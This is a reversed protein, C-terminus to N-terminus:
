RRAALAAARAGEYLRRAARARARARRPQWLRHLDVHGRADVRAHVQAQCALAVHALAARRRAVEVHADGDLGAAAVEGGDREEAALRLAEAEATASVIAAGKAQLVSLQPRRDCLSGGVSLILARCTSVKAEASLQLADFVLRTEVTMRGSASEGDEDRLAHLRAGAFFRFDSDSDAAAAEAARLHMRELYVNGQAERVVQAAVLRMLASSPFVSIAESLLQGVARQLPTLPPAHSGGGGGRHSRPMVPCAGGSADM